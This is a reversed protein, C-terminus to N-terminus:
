SNPLNDLKIGAREIECKVYRSIDFFSKRNENDWYCYNRNFIYKIFCFIKLGHTRNVYKCM